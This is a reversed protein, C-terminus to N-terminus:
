GAQKSSFHESLYRGFGAVALRLLRHNMSAGWNLNDRESSLGSRLHPAAHYGMVGSATHLRPTGSNIWVFILNLGRRLSRIKTLPKTNFIEIECYKPISTKKPWNLREFDDIMILWDLLTQSQSVLFLIGISKDQNKRLLYKNEHMARQIHKMFM